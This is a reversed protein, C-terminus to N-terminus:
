PNAVHVLQKGINGGSMMNVFAKGANELGEEVTEHVKLQGQVIWTALQQLGKDFQEMYDLLLFRDREIRKEALLDEIDKPIPPPYPVDKNYQSIQGCLILRSKSNMQKIVANSVDGGVNDFYIDVGDPCSVQLKEQINETKYNIAVDFGLEETLFRCKEDTGCIGIVKGCGELRAIQGALTGCAGAAGSVVFTENEGKRIRGKEWIGILSTLGILGLCSLILSIRDGTIKRDIKQLDSSNTVFFLQWIWKLPRGVIDGLQFNDDTSAIVVGLGILGNIVEGLQWPQLYEVGTVENMCCRLAPDVSLYLSKVLVQGAQLKEPPFPCSEYKFNEETAVANPGPRSQLVVRFNEM